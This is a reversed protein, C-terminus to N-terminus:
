RLPEIDAPRVGDRDPASAALGAVDAVSGDALRLRAAPDVQAWPLLVFGREHARPHPLTLREDSRVVEDDAGPEGYAVM